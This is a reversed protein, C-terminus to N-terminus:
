EALRPRPRREQRCAALTAGAGILGMGILGAGSTQLMGVDPAFAVILVAMGLLVRGVWTWTDAAIRM